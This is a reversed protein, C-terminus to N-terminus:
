PHSLGRPDRRLAQIHVRIGEIAQRHAGTLALTAPIGHTGQSAQRQDGGAEDRSSWTVLRIGPVAGSTAIKAASAAPVSTPAIALAIM